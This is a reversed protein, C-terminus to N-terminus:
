ETDFDRRYSGDIKVIHCDLDLSDRLNEWMSCARKTNTADIVLHRYDFFRSIKELDQEGNRQLVLTNVSLKPSSDKVEPLPKSLVYVLSDAVYFSSADAGVVQPADIRERIWYRGVRNAVRDYDNTLMSSNGEDVIHIATTGHINYVALFSGRSRANVDYLVFGTYVLLVSVVGYFVAMSRTKIFIYFLLIIGMVVFLDVMNFPIETVRLCEWKSILSMSDLMWRSLQSVIHALADTLWCDPFLAESGFFLFTAPILLTALPIVVLSSVFTGIAFNQFYYILLPFMLIQAAVSIREVEVVYRWLGKVAMWVWMAPSLKEERAKDLFEQEKRLQRHIYSECFEFRKSLANLVSMKWKRFSIYPMFMMISAVAVFSFQFSIDFLYHPNYVLMAFCTAAVVNRPQVFRSVFTKLVYYITFMLAARVISPSLGTMFAYMWLASLLLVFKVWKMWGPNRLCWGIFNFFCTLMLIVIGVHLGSVALVHSAGGNRFSESIETNKVADKDGLVLVSM